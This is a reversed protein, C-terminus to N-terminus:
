EDVTVEVPRALALSGIRLTATYTAAPVPGFKAAEGGLQGGSTLGPRWTLHQLGASKQGKLEAIQKGAQDTITVTPTETPTDRLYFYIAAGFQPNEGSFAKIGLNHLRRPRFTTTPRVSFLYGPNAYSDSRLEQLPKVDMIWIARGHTGIVLEADRPHVVVDHVPVTPLLKQKHWHKGGDPSIFLGRETGVYLLERNVPDERVVYVSGEPPLGAALSTWTRGHDVSKFLYPAPDDNRHRDIALYVTGEEFRSCEVRSVWRAQSLGPITASLDYWNTGGNSTMLVKGDDTGAFLLGPKLPSEAVTTITHGNYPSPGPQGRTLDPSIINWTDGRDTSRFVYNGGFYVTKSNHPSLVLPSSWNFRFGPHKGPDPAVNTSADKATLRPKIDVTSGTRVNVRQLIAYQGECYVTDADDPDVQCYYGDFGLISSWEAITIGASDRTASPGGWSGNDQLGGYVRYPKGLDTAVAYFQGVPLNKLHEWVEGRDFSYNLGGDCGLVLHYRDRPDIWMAHYDSHTGKAANGTNFTRGGDKSVFLGVGLVYIRQEDSPDVRIQGYYFPRPCLSNLYSWTLGKDESRFIGGEAPGLKRNNPGQGTTTVATKDTQVVAYIVSPNMRSVSIGCRGFPREPLGGRMIKWSQGGDASKYLGAGPGTQAAPNGGAYADRRVHYGAAYLIEPDEPDIAVDVCGTSDGLALVHSWTKGADTTKFLGRQLNPGWLHGLAAVYAIAPDKPHLVIRGIHQTDKLGVHRWSKGGDTSRYVGDGSSVSNRANGEGTGVWVVDANGQFVAVAGLSVSSQHEFVPKFTVGHNTTKWLGGTASAIYQFRPEKEYVAVDVIRGSMNAPGICRPKVVTLAQDVGPPQQARLAAPVPSLLFAVALPPLFRHM